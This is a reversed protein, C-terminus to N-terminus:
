NQTYMIANPRSKGWMEWTYKIKILICSIRVDALAYKIATHSRRIIPDSKENMQITCWGRNFFAPPNSYISNKLLKFIPPQILMCNYCFVNGEGIQLKLPQGIAYYCAYTFHQTTYNSFHMQHLYISITQGLIFALLDHLCGNFIHFSRKM